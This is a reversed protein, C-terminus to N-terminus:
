LANSIEIFIEISIQEARASLDFGHKKLISEVKELDYGKLNNRITKRKQTFSDRVLKYFNDLDNVKIKDKKRFEIVESDVNPKPLFVNRSVDMLKSIDFNYQLFVSLSNYSKTNPKANFREGVEKQVMFVMKDIDIDDNIIKTIIPTTIYYPLNAIFYLYKYNYKNLLSKLDVKLFDKFIIEVNDFENLNNNLIDRLTEDIEFCVVNKANQCLKYTLAGSGPGVEIVLSDEQINTKSIINDIIHEDIIFNQGFKKKFNFEYEQLIKNAEIPSYKM